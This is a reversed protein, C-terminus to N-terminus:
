LGIEKRREQWCIPCEHKNASGYEHQMHPCCSNGWEAWEDDAKTLQAKTIARHFDFESYDRSNAVPILNIIEQPSLLRDSM